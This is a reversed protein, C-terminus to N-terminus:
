RWRRSEEERMKQYAELQEGQLLEAVKADSAERLARAEDRASDFDMNERARGFLDFIQEREAEMLEGLQDFQKDSLDAESALDALREEAREVMRERRMAQREARQEEMTEKVLGSLRERVEPDETALAEVLREELRGGRDQRPEDDQVDVTRGRRAGRGATSAALSGGRGARAGPNAQLEQVQAELVAVRAELDGGTAPTASDTTLLFALAAGVALLGLIGVLAGKEM